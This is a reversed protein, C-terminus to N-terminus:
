LIRKRSYAEVYNPNLEIAYDYYSIAYMYNELGDLSLAKNYYEEATSPDDNLELAKEFLLRADTKDLVLFGKYNCAGVHNLLIAKDFQIMADDIKNLRTFCKGKLFYAEDMRFWMGDETVKNLCRIAEYYNNSKILQVAQEYYSESQNNNAFCNCDIRGIEYENHEDIRFEILCDIKDLESRSTNVLESTETLENLLDELEKKEM